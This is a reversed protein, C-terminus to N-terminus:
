AVENRGELYDHVLAAVIADERIITLIRKELQRVRERTIKFERGLDELTMQEHGHLGARGELIRTFRPDYNKAIEEIRKEIAHFVATDLVEDEVSPGVKHLVLSGLTSGDPDDSVVTDLHVLPSAFEIIAKLTGPDKGLAQAIEELSPLRGNRTEFDGRYRVVQRWQEWVHVPLRVSTSTDAIARSISQRIWWTAYTSFKYGLNPDFKEAARNLGRMGEQTLDDLELEGSQPIFGKAIDFVLRCNNVVMTHRALDGDNALSRLEASDEGRALAEKAQLGIQIRRGLAVEQDANMIRHKGLKGPMAYRMEFASEGGVSGAGSQSPSLESPAGGSGITLQASEELARAELLLGLLHAAEEASLGRRSAVTVVHTRTLPGVREADELLASYAREVLENVKM